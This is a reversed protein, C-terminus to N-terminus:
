RENEELRKEKREELTLIPLDIKKSMAECCGKCKCTKCEIANNFLGYHECLPGYVGRKVDGNYLPCRYCNDQAYEINGTCDVIIATSDGGCRPCHIIDLRHAKNAYIMGCIKCKYAANSLDIAQTQSDEPFAKKLFCRLKGLNPFDDPYNTKIEKWYKKAIEDPQSALYKYIESRDVDNVNKYKKDIEERIQKSSDALRM